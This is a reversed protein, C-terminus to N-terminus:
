NANPTGSGLVLKTTTGGIRIETVNKDATYRVATSVFKKAENEVKVDTEIVRKGDKIALKNDKVELRYEGPKLEQGGIVTPSFFQVTHKEAASAAALALTAFTFVIKKMM